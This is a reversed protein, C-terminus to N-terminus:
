ILATHAGARPDERCADWVGSVGGRWVGSRWPYTGHHKAPASAAAQQCHWVCMCVTRPAGVGVPPSHSALAWPPLRAPLVPCSVLLPARALSVPSGLCLQFAKPGSPLQEPLLCMGPDPGCSDSAGMKCGGLSEGPSKHPHLAPQCSRSGGLCAALPCTLLSSLPLSPTAALQPWPSFSFVWPSWPSAQTMSGPTPLLLARTVSSGASPLRTWDRSAGGAPTRETLVRAQSHRVTHASIGGPTLLAAAQVHRHCSLALGLCSSWLYGQRSLLGSASCSDPPWRRGPVWAM